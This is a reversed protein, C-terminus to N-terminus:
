RHSRRVVYEINDLTAKLVYLTYKSGDACELVAKGYFSDPDSPIRDVLYHMLLGSDKEQLELTQAVLGRYQITLTESVVIPEGVKAQLSHDDPIEALFNSRQENLAGKWLSIGFGFALAVILAVIVGFLTEVCVKLYRVRRPIPYGFSCESHSGFGM